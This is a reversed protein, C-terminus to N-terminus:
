RGDRRSEGRKTQQSLVSNTATKTETLKFDDFWVTGTTPDDYSYRPRRQISVLVATSDRSDDKPAVFDLVVQRWESRRETVAESSALWIAPNSGSVVVRPGEPTVLEETKVYCELRYSRTARLIAMQRVEGSLRTTDRGAFDIRLSRLGTRAASSDVAIRAYDSRAINWDFHTLQGAIDSEFGANRILPRGGNTGSASNEWFEQALELHGGAILRELFEASEVTTSHAGNRCRQALRTAEVAKGRALLFRAVGFGTWSEEGALASVVDVDGSTANWVLDLTAPLLERDSTAVHRFEAVSDAVKGRRLLLNALRWRVEDYGSALAAATRLSDEAGARDGRQEKIAALLVHFSYNRPSLNVARQAHHEARAIDVDSEVLEAEALRANLRASDSFFDVAALLYARSVVARDDLLAGLAFRYLAAYCLAACGVLAVVVIVVRAPAGAKKLEISM